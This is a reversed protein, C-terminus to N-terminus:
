RFFTGSIKPLHPFCKNIVFVPWIPLNLYYYCPYYCIVFICPVSTLVSNRICRGPLWFCDKIGCCPFKWHEFNWGFENMSNMATPFRSSLCRSHVLSHAFVSIFPSSFLKTCSVVIIFFRFPEINLIRSDLIFYHMFISHKWSSVYYDMRM